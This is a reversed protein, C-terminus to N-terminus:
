QLAAWVALCGAATTLVAAVVNLVAAQRTQRMQAAMVGVAAALERRFSEGGAQLEATMAQKGAELAANLIREAKGKAETSWRLAVGEMEEKFAELAQQQRETADQLIRANLTRLIMIPDDKGLVIGHKGAVERILEDQEEPTV